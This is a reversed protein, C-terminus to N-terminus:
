GCKCADVYAMRVEYLVSEILKTEDDTLNGTTKERILKLMDIQLRAAPLNKPEDDAGDLAALAVHRYSLVLTTMDVEPVGASQAVAKNYAENGSATM